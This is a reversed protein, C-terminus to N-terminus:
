ENLLRTVEPDTGYNKLMYDMFQTVAVPGIREDGHLCGSLYVQPATQTKDGTITAVLIECLEKGCVINNSYTPLGYKVSASELKVLNPYQQAFQRWQSYVEDYTM